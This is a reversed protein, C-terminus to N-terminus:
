NASSNLSMKARIAGGTVAKVLAQDGLMKRYDERLWAYIEQGKRLKRATRLAMQWEPLKYISELM